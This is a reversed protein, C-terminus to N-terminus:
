HEKEKKKEDGKKKKKNTTSKKKRKKKSVLGKGFVNPLILPSDLMELTIVIIGEAEIVSKVMFQREPELLIEEEDPFLSYQSSTTAGGMRM